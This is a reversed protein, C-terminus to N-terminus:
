SSVHIRIEFEDAPHGRDWPRVLRLILTTEGTRAPALVITRIGASGIATTSGPRFEDSVVTLADAPQIEAEWRYGTTGNEPLEIRLRDDIAITANSTDRTLLHEAM